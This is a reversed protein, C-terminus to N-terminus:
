DYDALSLEANGRAGPRRGRDSSTRPQSACRWSGAAGSRVGGAGGHLDDHIDVRRVGAPTKADLVRLERRALDVHEGNLACLESVRRGALTLTAVVARYRPMPRVTARKAHYIATSEAIGLEAAIAKWAKGTARM